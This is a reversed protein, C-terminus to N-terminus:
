KLLHPNDEIIRMLKKMCGFKKKKVSNANKYGAEQAIENMNYKLAWLTLIKKCNEGLFALVNNLESRTERIIMMDEPSDAYDKTPKIYDYVKEKVFSRRQTSYGLKSCIAMLYTRISSEARFQGDQIRLYVTILGEQFIDEVDDFYKQKLQMIVAKRHYQVLYKLALDASRGGSRIMDIIEKDNKVTSM